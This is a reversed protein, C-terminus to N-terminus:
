SCIQCQVDRGHFLCIQTDFAIRTQNPKAKSHVTIMRPFGLHPLYHCSPFYSRAFFIPSSLWPCVPVIDWRVLELRRLWNQSRIPCFVNTNKRGILSCCTDWELVSAYVFSTQGTLPRHKPTTVSPIKAVRSKGITKAHFKVHQKRGRSIRIQPLTIIHGALNDHFVTFQFNCSLLKWDYETFPSTGRGM